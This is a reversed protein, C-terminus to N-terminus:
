RSSGANKRHAHGQALPWFSMKHCSLSLHWQSWPSVCAFRFYGLFVSCHSIGCLSGHLGPQFSMHWKACLSYWSSECFLSLICPVDIPTMKLPTVKPYQGCGLILSTIFIFLVETVRLRHLFAKLFAYPLPSACRTLFPSDKKSGDTHDKGSICQQVSQIRFVAMATVSEYGAQWQGSQVAWRGDWRWMAAVLFIYSVRVARQSWRQTLEFVM